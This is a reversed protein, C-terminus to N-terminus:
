SGIGPVQWYDEKEQFIPYKNQENQLGPSLYDLSVVLSSYIGGVVM